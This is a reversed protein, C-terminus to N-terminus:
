GKHTYTNSSTDKCTLSSYAYHTNVTLSESEYTFNYQGVLGDNDLKLENDNIRKEFVASAENPTYLVLEVSEIDARGFADRVDVTFQMERKESSHTPSWETVETESWGDGM